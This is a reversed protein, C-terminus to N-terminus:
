RRALIAFSIAAFRRLGARGWCEMRANATLIALPRPLSSRSALLSRAQIQAAAATQPDSIRKALDALAWGAGAADPLDGDWGLLRASQRFVVSGRERAHDDLARTALPLEGLLAIWGDPLRALEAPDCATESLIRLLPDAPRHGQGLTSLAERWWALRLEALMPERATVLAAGLQEDLAWLAAMARRVSAPAYALALRRLPDAIEPLDAM